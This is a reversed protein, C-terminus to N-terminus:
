AWASLRYKTGERRVRGERELKGLIALTSREAVPLVFAAVDDYARPVLEDLSLASTGLAAVVKEERWARHKLYEGLKGPGDPIAPGHSPYLTTVPLQQLRTLQALYDTMDGEPPDIVITGFGAVMDGVIAARSAEDYLCVHGRAHGPTHLVRWRMPGLPLVEGDRLRRDAQLELRDATREHAWVPLSLRQVLRALGGVHDAHHHTLVVAELAAGEAKLAELLSVLRDTEADDVSGPDVM